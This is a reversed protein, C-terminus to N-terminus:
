SPTAYQVIGNPAGRLFRYTVHGLVEGQFGVERDEDNHIMYAGQEIQIGTKFVHSGTM